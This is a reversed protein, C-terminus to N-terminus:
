PRDKRRARRWDAILFATELVASSAVLVLAFYLVVVVVGSFRSRGGDWAVVFWRIM